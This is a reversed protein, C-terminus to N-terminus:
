TDRGCLGQFSINQADAPYNSLVSINVVNDSAGRQSATPATFSFHCFTTLPNYYLSLISYFNLM